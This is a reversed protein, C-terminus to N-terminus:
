KDVHNKKGRREKLIPRNNKIQHLACENMAKQLSEAVPLSKMLPPGYYRPHYKVERTIVYQQDSSEWIENDNNNGTKIKIRDWGKETALYHEGDNGNQGIIDMRNEDSENWNDEDM